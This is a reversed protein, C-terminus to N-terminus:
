GIIILYIGIAGALGPLEYILIITAVIELIRRVVKQWPVITETKRQIEVVKFKPVEIWEVLKTKTRPSRYIVGTTQWL